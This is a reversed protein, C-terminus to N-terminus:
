ATPLDSTAAAAPAAPAPAETKVVEPLAPKDKSFGEPCIVKRVSVIKGDVIGYWTTKPKDAKKETKAFAEAFTPETKAVKAPKKAKPAAKAKKAKVKAVKAPKKAKVAQKGKSKGKWLRPKHAPLKQGKEVCTNCNAWQFVGDKVEVIYRDRNSVKTGHPMMEQMSKTKPITGRKVIAIITGSFTRTVGRGNTRWTIKTNISLSM